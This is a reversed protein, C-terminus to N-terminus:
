HPQRLLWGLMLLSAAIIWSGGVRIGIALWRADPPALARALHTTLVAIDILEGLVV